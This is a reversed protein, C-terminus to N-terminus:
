SLHVSTFIAQWTDQLSSASVADTTATVCYHYNGDDLIMVRGVMDGGEGAATWVCEFRSHDSSSTEMVTLADAGFGTLAELTASLNGSSLVEVTVDYGDCLYITGAASEMTVANPVELFIESQPEMVPKMDIDGLTEFTPAETCGCLLVALLLMLCYKKM